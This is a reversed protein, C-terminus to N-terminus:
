RRGCANPWALHRRFGRYEIAPFSPRSPPRGASRRGGHRRQERLGGDSAQRPFSSKWAASGPSSRSTATGSGNRLGEARVRQAEPFGRLRDVSAGQNENGVIFAIDRHKLSRWINWWRYAGPATASLYPLPFSAAIHSRFACSPVGLRSMQVLLKRSDALPPTVIFGDLLSQSALQEIEEAAEGITGQCPHLLLNYGRERCCDLAGHQIDPIYHNVDDDRYLLAVIFSSRAALRRASINPAYGLSRAVCTGQGADSPSGQAGPQLRAVGNSRYGPGARWM